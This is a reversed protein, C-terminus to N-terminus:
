RRGQAYARNCDLLGHDRDRRWVPLPIADLMERLSEAEKCARDATAAISADILWLVDEGTSARRGEVAYAGGGRTAVVISFPIGQSRLTLRASDLRTADSEALEGLFAEYPSLRGDGQRDTAKGAKWRFSLLPVTDLVACSVRARGLEQRAHLLLAWSALTVILCLTGVFEIVTVRRARLYILPRIVEEM